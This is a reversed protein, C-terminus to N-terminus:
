KKSKLEVTVIEPLNFIRFPFVSNGLGRSIIMTTNQKDFRGATYKPMWGQTPAVLGGIFPIRIQGGHAHGTLILDVNEDVYEEFREPRHSLMITVTDEAIKETALDIMKPVEMGMLPDEIGAIAIKEGARELLISENVLIRVDLRRLAEYIVKPENTAVEHNGLVYYVPAILTLQEVARLSQELDYRRSDIVDGTIFIADPNTAQVKKILRKHNEGFEADHLDTVQTIKFGDFAAPVLESEFEYDTVSIWENNVLLFIYIGLCILVLKILLKM